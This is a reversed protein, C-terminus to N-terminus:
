FFGGFGFRIVPNPYPSLEDDILNFLIAFSAFGRNGINQFFGGGLFFGNVNVRREIDNLDYYSRSLIEYEAQAFIGKFFIYRALFSVGYNHTDYIPCGACYRFSNYMYTFRTGLHFSPTVRYGVIPSVEVYTSYSSFGAGLMGGVFWRRFQPKAPRKKVNGEQRQGSTNEYQAFVSPAAFSFLM